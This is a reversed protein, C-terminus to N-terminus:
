DDEKKMMWYGDCSPCNLINNSDVYRDCYPCMVGFLKIILEEKNNVESFLEKLREFLEDPWILERDASEQKQKAKNVNSIKRPFSGKKNEEM